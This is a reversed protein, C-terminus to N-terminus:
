AEVPPGLRLATGDPGISALERDQGEAPLRVPRLRFEEIARPERGGRAMDVLTKLNQPHLSVRLACEDGSGVVHEWGWPREAWAAMQRQLEDAERVFRAVRHISEEAALYLSAPEERGENRHPPRPREAVHRLVMGALAHGVRPLGAWSVACALSAIHEQFPAHPADEFAPDEILVTSPEPCSPNRVFTCFALGHVGGKGKYPSLQDRARCRTAAPIPWRSSGKAEFWVRHTANPGPVDCEYDPGSAGGNGLRISCAGMREALLCALGVGALESLWRSVNSNRQGWALERLGPALYEALPLTLAWGERQGAWWSEMFFYRSACRLLDLVSFEVDSRGQRPDALGGPMAGVLEGRVRRSGSLKQYTPLPIALPAPGVVTTGPAIPGKFVIRSASRM